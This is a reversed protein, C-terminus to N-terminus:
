EPIHHNSLGFDSQLEDVGTSDVQVPEQQQHRGVLGSSKGDENRFIKGEYPLFRSKGRSNCKM